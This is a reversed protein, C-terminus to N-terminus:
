PADVIKAERNGRISAGSNGRRLYGEEHTRQRRKGSTTPTAPHLLIRDMCRGSNSVHRSRM